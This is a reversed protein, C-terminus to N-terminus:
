INSNETPSYYQLWYETLHCYKVLPFREVFLLVNEFFLCQLSFIETSLKHFDTSFYSHFKYLRNLDTFTQKSYSRFFLNSSSLFFAYCLRLHSDWSWLSAEYLLFTIQLAVDTEVFGLVTKQPVQKKKKKKKKKLIGIIPFVIHEISFYPSAFRKTLM